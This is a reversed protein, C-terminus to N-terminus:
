LFRFYHVTRIFIFFIYPNTLVDSFNFNLCEIRLDLVAELVIIIGRVVGYEFPGKGNTFFINISVNGNRPLRLFNM